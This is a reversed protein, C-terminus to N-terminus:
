KVREMCDFIFTFFSILSIITISVVPHIYRYSIVPTFLAVIMATAFSSLSTFFTFLLFNNYIKNMFMIISTIFLLISIFIFLLININPLITYLISYIKEKLPTFVIYKNKLANFFEEDKEFYAGRYDSRSRILQVEDVDLIYIPVKWIYKTYNLIHKLYSIPYKIIYKIWVKKLNELNGYEFPANENWITVLRDGNLKNENYIKQVDFMDRGKIYWNDPILSYDGSNVACGAIQLLFIHNSYNKKGNEFLLHFNNSIFILITALIFAFGVLFKKYKNVDIIKKNITIFLFFLPYVTVIFNHRWLMGVLLLFISFIKSLIFIFKNKIIYVSQFFIISLAFWIILSATTDKYYIVMTFFINAIFSILFLFIVYKNKFKLYLSIIILYLGSYWLLLNILFIYYSDFGFINYIIRLVISIIVPHWNNYIGRYGKYMIEYNDYNQFYGPFCLYYQFAFLLICVIAAIIIFLYDNKSINLENNVNIDKIFTSCNNYYKKIKSSFIILVFLSSLLVLIYLYNNIKVKLKYKIGDIKELDIEKNSVLHGFPSGEYDMKMSKIFDNEEIIENTDIYVDYLDSNRFIKDYYRIRFIYDYVVYENLKNNEELDNLELTRNIDLTFDCLYGVRTKNGLISLVILSFLLLIIISIYIILSLKNNKM